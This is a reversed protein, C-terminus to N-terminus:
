FWLHEAIIKVGMATLIIGGLILSQHSRKAPVNKGFLMGLMSAIFTVGGIVIVPFLIPVDLFGFSLGVVLADISTAVSLGILVKLDFPNFSKLMGEPKVGEIIMKVGIIALLGFAIWHDVSAIVS